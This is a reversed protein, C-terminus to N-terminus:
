PNHEKKLKGEMTKYLKKFFQEMQFLTNRNKNATAQKKVRRGFHM